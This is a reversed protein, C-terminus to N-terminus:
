EVIEGEARYNIALKESIVMVFISKNWPDKLGRVIRLAITSFRRKGEASKLNEMEAYRAIVWDCRQSLNTLRWQWLAPDKQILEDPDKVDDPLSVVERWRSGASLNVIASRQMLEREIVMLHWVFGGRWDNLSKLHQTTMATGSDCSRKVGAQHSSIVDLVEVIAM